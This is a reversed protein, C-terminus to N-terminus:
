ERQILQTISQLSIIVLIGELGGDPEFRIEGFEVFKEAIEAIKILESITFYSLIASENASFLIATGCIHLIRNVCLKAKFPDYRESLFKPEAGLIVSSM